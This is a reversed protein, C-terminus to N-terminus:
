GLLMYIVTSEFVCVPRTCTSSKVLHFLCLCESVLSTSSCSSLLSLCSYSSMLSEGTCKREATGESLDPWETLTFLVVTFLCFLKLKMNEQVRTWCEVGSSHFRVLVPHILPVTQPQFDSWMTRRGASELGVFSVFLQTNM